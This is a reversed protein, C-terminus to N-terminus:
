WHFGLGRLPSLVRACLQCRPGCRQRAAPTRRAALVGGPQSAEVIQAIGAEHVADELYSRELGRIRELDLTNPKALCGFLRFSITSTTVMLCQADSLTHSVQEIMLTKSNHRKKAM